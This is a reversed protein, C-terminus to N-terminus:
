NMLFITNLFIGLICHWNKFNDNSGALLSNTHAKSHSHILAEESNM